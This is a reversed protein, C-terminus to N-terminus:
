VSFAIIMTRSILLMIEYVSYCLVKGVFLYLWIVNVNRLVIDNKMSHCVNESRFVM